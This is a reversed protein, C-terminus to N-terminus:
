SSVGSATTTGAQAPEVGVLWLPGTLLAVPEHGAERLVADFGLAVPLIRTTVVVRV